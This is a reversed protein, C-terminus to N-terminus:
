LRRVQVGAQTELGRPGDVCWEPFLGNAYEEASLKELDAAQSIFSWCKPMANLAGQPKAKSVPKIRNIKDCM